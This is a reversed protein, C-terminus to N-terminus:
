LLDWIFRLMGLIESRKWQSLYMYWNEGYSNSLSHLYTCVNLSFDYCTITHHCLVVVNIFLLIIHSGKPMCRLGKLIEILNILIPKIIRFKITRNWFRNDGFRALEYNSLITRFVYHKKYITFHWMGNWTMQSYNINFGMSFMMVFVIVNLITM